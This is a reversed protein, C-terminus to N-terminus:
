AGPPDSYGLLTRLEDLTARNLDLPRPDAPPPADVQDIHSRGPQAGVQDVQARGVNARAGAETAPPAPDRRCGSVRAVLLCSSGM